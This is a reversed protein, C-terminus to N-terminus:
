SIMGIVDLQGPLIDIELQRGHTCLTEGDAHAPLIESSASVSIKSTRATRIYPSGEQTGKMFQGMLGFIQLKGPNGAICVDLQGDDPSANPAMQFGGGMRRGNMVSIMLSPQELRQENYQIRVVPALDYLFITKLAATGYSLFGSLVKMKLAEFGVVADFGIGVGNGFFRVENEGNVKVRGIDIKRVKGTVLASLNDKFDQPIGVGYAFDNGRGVGIVGLKCQNKGFGKAQMLGNIVENITGDGGMGIVIEAGKLAAEKALEAAHWPRETYVKEFSYNKEKLLSEVITFLKSARSQGANPNVIIIRDLM